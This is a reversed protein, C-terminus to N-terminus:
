DDDQEEDFIDGILDTSVGHKNRLTSIVKMHARLSEQTAKLKDMVIFTNKIGEQLADNAETKSKIVREAVELRDLLIDMYKASIESLCTLKNDRWERIETNSPNTM